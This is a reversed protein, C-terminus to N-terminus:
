RTLFIFGTAVAAVGGLVKNLFRARRLKRDAKAKQKMSDNLKQLDDTYAAKLQNYKVNQVNLDESLNDIVKGQSAIMETQISDEHTVSAAYDRYDQELQDCLKDVMVTDHIEKAKGRATITSQGKGKATLTEITAIKLARTLSTISDQLGAVERRLSDEIPKTANEIVPVVSTVPKPKHCSPCGAMSYAIIIVVIAIGVLYYKKKGIFPTLIAKM